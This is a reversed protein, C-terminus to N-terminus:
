PQWPLPGQPLRPPVDQLHVTPPPEQYLKAKLPDYVFRIFALLVVVVVVWTVVGIKEPRGLKVGWTKFEGTM